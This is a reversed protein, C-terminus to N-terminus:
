ASKSKKRSDLIIFPLYLVLWIVLLLGAFGFLYGPNGLLNQLPELPSGPSAWSLFFFNTGWLRNLFYIPPCVILLFLVPRWLNKVSPRIQGSVLLMVPFTFHFAHIVFSQISQYNWLPYVTWDSFLLAALAGPLCLSYLIEGATKNPWFAYWFNIFISMGCLHLPIMSVDDQGVSLALIHRAGELLVCAIALAKRMIERKKEDAKKYLLSYVVCFAAICALWILHAPGFLSFGEWPSLRSDFILFYQM